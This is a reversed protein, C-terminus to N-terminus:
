ASWFAHGFLVVTIRGITRTSSSRTARAAGSLGLLPSGWCTARVVWSCTRARTVPIGPFLPLGGCSVPLTRRFQVVLARSEGRRQDIASILLPVEGVVQFRRKRQRALRRGVISHEGMEGVPDGRLARRERVVATQGSLAVAVRAATPGSCSCSTPVRSRPQSRKRPVVMTGNTWATRRIRSRRALYRVHAV